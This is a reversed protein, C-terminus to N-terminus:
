QPLTACEKTLPCSGNKEKKKEEPSSSDQSQARRGKKRGRSNHAPPAKGGGKRVERRYIGISFKKDRSLPSFDIELDLKTKPPRKRQSVIPQGGKKLPNEMEELAKRVMM